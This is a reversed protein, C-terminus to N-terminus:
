RTLQWQWVPGDDPDEANGQFTFGLKKLVNTSANEEPRTHALVATVESHSWAFDILGQAAETALGRERHTAKIEYGIEVTGTPTPGGKFGGSGILLNDPRYVLLHAGWRELAPDKKVLEYFFPFADANETWHKPVNVGLVRSLTANGALVAEMLTLDCPIINLRSTQIM